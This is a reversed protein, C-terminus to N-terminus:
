SFSKVGLVKLLYENDWGAMQRKIEMGCKASKEQKLLNLAIRRILSTNEAINGADANQEDERFAVDLIWHARNEISWHKRIAEAIKLACDPLSSIYYRKEMSLTQDPLLRESKVMIISKLNLWKDKQPLWDIDETVYIERKEIRGHGAEKSGIADCEM